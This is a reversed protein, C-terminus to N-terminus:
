KMMFRKMTHPVGNLFDHAKAFVDHTLSGLRLGGVRYAVDNDWDIIMLFRDGSTSEFLLVCDWAKGFVKQPDNAKVEPEEFSFMDITMIDESKLAPGVHPSQPHCKCLDFDRSDPATIRPQFHLRYIRAEVYLIPSVEPIIKGELTQIVETITSINKQADLIWFRVHTKSADVNVFGENDASVAVPYRNKYEVAGKWGAWSWSPFQHRRRLPTPRQMLKILPCWWLGQAFASNVSIDTLLRTSMIPIGFFTFFKVRSLLGRFADLIDEEHTFNRSTYERVHDMFDTDRDEHTRQYEYRFIQPSMMGARDRPSGKPHTLPQHSTFAERCTMDRCTYYVQYDTFYLCCRSLIAEQYTWGRRVWTTDRLVRFLTPLSQFLSIDALHVWRQEHVRPRSVGALGYNADSGAAAVITAYAGAYVRDMSAIQRRKAQDDKQTICYQDVWLYRHGLQKTVQLADEIVQSVNQPLVGDESMVCPKTTGWVYSLAFYSDNDAIHVIARTDCDICYLPDRGTSPREENDYVHNHLSHCQRLWTDIKVFNVHAAHVVTGEIEPLTVARTSGARELLILGNDLHGQSKWFSIPGVHDPFVSLAVPMQAVSGSSSVGFSGPALFARLEGGAANVNPNMIFSQDEFLCCVPCNRDYVLVHLRAIFRGDQWFERMKFVSTFDIERCRMCIDETQSRLDAADIRFRFRKWFPTTSM